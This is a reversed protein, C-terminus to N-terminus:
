NGFIHITSMNVQHWPKVKIDMVWFRDKQDMTLDQNGVENVENFADALMM